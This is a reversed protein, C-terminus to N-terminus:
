FLNKWFNQFKEMFGIQKIEGFEGDGEDIINLNEHVFNLYQAVDTFLTYQNSDCINEDNKPVGLSVIGRVYWIKM